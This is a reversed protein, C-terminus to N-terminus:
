PSSTRAVLRGRPDAWVALATGDPLVTVAASACTSGRGTTCGTAGILRAASWRGGRDRVAVRISATRSGWRSWVLAQDGRSNQVLPSQVSGDLADSSTLGGPVAGRWRGGPHRQSMTHTVGVHQWSVTVQRRPGMVATTSADESFRSLRRQPWWHGTRSVRRVKTAYWIESGSGGSFVLLGAGRANMVLRGPEGHGVRVAPGWGVRPVLRRAYLSSGGGADTGVVMATGDDAVATSMVEAPLAPLHHPRVQALRRSEVTPGIRAYDAGDGSMRQWTILTAGSAAVQVQPHHGQRFGHGRTLQVARSWSGNGPRRAVLVDSRGGRGVREWVVTVQGTRDVGTQLSGCQQVGTGRRIVVAPSWEGAPTRRAAHITCDAAWVVTSTGSRDSVLAPNTGATGSTPAAVELPGSAAGVPVAFRSASREFAPGRWANGSWSPLSVALLVLLVAAAWSLPRRCMGTVEWTTVTGDAGSCTQQRAPAGPLTRTGWAGPSRGRAPALAECRLSPLRASTAGPDEEAMVPCSKGRRRRAQRRWTSAGVERLGPLDPGQRRQLGGHRRLRRGPRHPRRARPRRARRLRSAPQRRRARRGALRRVGGSRCLPGNRAPDHRCRPGRVALDQVFRLYGRVDDIMSAGGVTGHGPVVVEPSLAELDDLVALAGSVSGHSMLPTVGNFLLDGAFLVREAPLWVISDAVTHAPRGVYRVDCRMEDVYVRLESEYTLFPPALEVHGWDVPEWYAPEPPRGWALLADRVKQHGVITAGPLLYNGYTHDGHHHTNVLTRVPRDTVDAIARLYATTRDATACTDVSVVGSRGVMFGTNNVFWGGDAQVYAFVREAVEVVQTEGPVSVPVPVAM